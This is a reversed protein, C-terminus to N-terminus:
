FFLSSAAVPHFVRIAGKYEPTGSTHPGDVAGTLAALTCKEPQCEFGASPQNSGNVYVALNFVLYEPLSPIVDFLILTTSAHRAPKTVVSDCRGVGEADALIERCGSSFVCTKAIVLSIMRQTVLRISLSQATGVWPSPEPKPVSSDCRARKREKDDQM